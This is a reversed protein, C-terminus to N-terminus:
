RSAAVSKMLRERGAHMWNWATQVMDKLSYQAKWGLIREAQAPDAVLSPPDGARRPVIKRPVPRGTVEEVATVV